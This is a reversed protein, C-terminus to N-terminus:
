AVTIPRTISATDVVGSDKNKLAELRKNEEELMKQQILVRM